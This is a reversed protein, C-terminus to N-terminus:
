YILSLRDVVSEMIKYDLIDWKNMGAPIEGAATDQKTERQHRGCNEKDRSRISGTSQLRSREADIALVDKGTESLIKILLSSVLTKGTGGKGSVAIIM